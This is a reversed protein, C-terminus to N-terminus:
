ARSRCLFAVPSRVSGYRLLKAVAAEPAMFRAASAAAALARAHPIMLGVSKILRGARDVVFRTESQFVPRGDIQQELRLMRLGSAGGPSDGLVVLDAQDAASLGYLDGNQQLFGRVIAETSRGPAPASLAGTRDRISEPGGSLNSLRVQLGPQTVARAAIASAIAATGSASLSRAAGATGARAATASRFAEKFNVRADLMRGPQAKGAGPPPATVAAAPAAGALLLAM